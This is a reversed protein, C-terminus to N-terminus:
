LVIAKGDSSIRKLSFPLLQTGPVGDGFIRLTPPLVRTGMVYRRPQASCAVDRVTLEPDDILATGTGVLVADLSARLAHVRVRTAPGTIPTRVGVGAAVRGDLSAAIKMTVFPRAHRMAHLWHENVLEADASPAHVAEVGADRLRHAGGAAEATPDPVAYVVRRIGAQILADACPGTRGQHACPELTVYATAGRAREGASRLAEVEAHPQGAAHHAGEGVVIGAGDIIVCGVRPNPFTMWEGALSAARALAASDNM